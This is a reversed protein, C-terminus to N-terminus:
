AHLRGAAALLANFAQGRWLAWNHGGSTAFYHFPIRARQLERAFAANQAHFHDRTASYFWIYTHDRRLTRAVKPLTHLPSNRRLLRPNGGFISKLDDALEYGSWSELVRFEGPHHLGINLAGYGGESLGVLARASGRPVTRYRADIARVLDRAVFTEWGEGPRIGNAWEKDTFTGTSGYPMVLIAPQAKRRAVLIDEVVGARVTFLFATPRGPIGHLLYIVPYRRAPHSAYGPPLYVYVSQSRGGLAPSPLNFRTTTGKLRVFGPDAPPPFGRYLWYNWGYRWVGIAGVTLFAALALTTLGAALRRAPLRGVLETM